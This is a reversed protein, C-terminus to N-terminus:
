FGQFDRRTAPDSKLLAKPNHRGLGASIGITHFQSLLRRAFARVKLQGAPIALVDDRGSQDAFPIVAPLSRGNVSVRQWLLLDVPLGPTGVVFGLRLFLVAELSQQEIEALADFVRV